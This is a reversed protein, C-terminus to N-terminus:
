RLSARQQSQAVPEAVPVDDVVTDMPCPGLPFAGDVSLDVEDHGAIRPTQQRDLLLIGLDHGRWVVEEGPIGGPRPAM